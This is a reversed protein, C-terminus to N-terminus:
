VKVFIKRRYLGWLVAYLVVLYSLAFLLSATRPAALPEVWRQFILNQLTVPRHDDRRSARDEM